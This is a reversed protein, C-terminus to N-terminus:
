VNETPAPTVSGTTPTPEPEDAQGWVKKGKSVALAVPAPTSGPMSLGSDTNANFM